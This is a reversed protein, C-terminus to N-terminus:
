PATKLQYHIQIKNEIFGQLMLANCSFAAKVSNLESAFLFPLLFDPYWFWLLEVFNYKRAFLCTGTLAGRVLGFRIYLWRRRKCFDDM